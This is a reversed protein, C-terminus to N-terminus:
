WAEGRKREVIMHEFAGALGDCISSLAAISEDSLQATGADAYLFGVLRKRV